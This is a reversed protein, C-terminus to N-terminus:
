PETAQRKYVCLQSFNGFPSQRIRRFPIRKVAAWTEDKAGLKRIRAVSLATQKPNRKDKYGTQTEKGKIYPFTLITSRNLYKTFNQLFTKINSADV